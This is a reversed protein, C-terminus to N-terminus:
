AARLSRLWEATLRLSEFWPSRPKWGLERAALSIDLVNVPVDAARGPKYVRKDETVNLLRVADNAVENISRGIGAGVNFKRHVGAYRVAALFAEAVDDIFVFDRVISGDGWIELPLGSLLRHLVAAVVGQRRGPIQYPGFPNAIRLITYNLGYLYEYLYLYKEVVLKSVGYASIPDTTSTEAIPTQAPIGYVTGGSSAFILRNVRATRCIDLLQVTAVGGALLDSAADANSSEPTSGGLLHFVVESGEVARALAIRDSFEGTLWTIRPDVPITQNVRGFGRVLAGERLLASTLARGMFGGGGLVLCSVNALNPYATM